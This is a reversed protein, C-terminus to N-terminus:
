AIDAARLFNDKVWAGDAAQYFSKLGKSLLSTNWFM